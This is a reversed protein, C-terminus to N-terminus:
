KQVLGSVLPQIYKKYKMWENSSGQYIKERVQSSSSTKVIRTTKYFELCRDEWSLGCYELLGRTEGEQDETLKEYNLDYIRGPFRGRWFLMLDDYLKYYEVLDNLNYAYGNGSGSFLHKYISWCTARADRNLHIIKANPFALLIFGIWRFNLPMKDTIVNEDIKLKSLDELYCNSVDKAIKSLSLNEDIVNLESMIPSIVKNIYGLEGAGYVMSHSALIQEVLSTGSRPMGVIFVHQITSDELEIIKGVDGFKDFLIKINAFLEQDDVISYGVEKKHITNGEQLFNFSKYYDGLDGYAKGLSFCLLKREYDTIGPKKYLNEMMLIHPDNPKYKKLTNGRNYYAEVYNNKLKIAADFKRVAEDNKGFDKLTNAYNYYVEAASPDLKISKNYNFIAKKFDGHDSYLNGINNYVATFRPNIHIAKNYNYIAGDFDGLKKLLNGYNYYAYVHNRDYRIAKKYCSIASDFEGMCVMVNGYNYYADAYDPQLDIAKNYKKVAADYDSQEKYLNGLNVYAQVYGPKKHIARKYEYKADEIRGERGYVIALDNHSSADNSDHLIAKKFANIAEINKGSEALVLGLNRYYVGVKKNIKIAQRIFRVSKLRKGQLNYVLGLLHLVDPHKQNIKKANELIDEAATLQGSQLYKLGQQLLIDIKQNAM